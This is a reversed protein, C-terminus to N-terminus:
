PSLFPNMLKEEMVSTPILCDPLKAKNKEFLEIKEDMM